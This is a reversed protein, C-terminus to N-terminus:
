ENRLRKKLTLTTFEGKCAAREVDYEVGELVVCSEGSYDCTHLEVEADAHLGASRAALWATTGISRVNVFVTTAKSGEHASGDEAISVSKEVLKATKDWRM